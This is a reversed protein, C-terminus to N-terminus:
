MWRGHFQSQPTSPPAVRPDDVDKYRVMSLALCVTRELRTEVKFLRARAKWLFFVSKGRNCVCLSAGETKNQKPKKLLIHTHTYVFVCGVVFVRM